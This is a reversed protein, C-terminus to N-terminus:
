TWMTLMEDIDRQCAGGRGTGWGRGSQAAVISIFQSWGADHISKALHHNKVMGKVNLDEFKIVRYKQALKNAEKFHHDRRQRAVHQHGRALLGVAKKRRRSGRKRRSVRRQATKLEGEAQRHYQPNP